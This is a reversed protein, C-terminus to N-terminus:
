EAAEYRGGATKFSKLFDNIKTTEEDSLEVFDFNVSVKDVTTGAPIPTITINSLNKNLSRVWAIAIQPLNASDSRKDIIEEQLFNILILNQKMADDQFRKLQNRFDGKPIDSSKALAGTLLGRGLPSYAVIPLGLENCTDVVGNTLIDPSFLSLEVEVCSLYQGYEKHIARIQEATVESLSIGGVKGKKVYEVIADFTERPFVSEGTKKILELDLRAPEFIDLYGDFVGLANEISAAVSKADGTPQFTEGSFAGKASIIVKERDEPNKDFYSQLLKYNSLHPGYFEGVNFLAKKDGAFEIVKKFTKFAIEPAVPEARWTFSMLGYGLAVSNKLLSRYESPSPM